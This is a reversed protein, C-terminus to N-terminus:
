DRILAKAQNQQHITGQSVLSLDDGFFCNGCDSCVHVGEYRNTLSIYFSAMGYNKSKDTSKGKKVLRGGVERCGEGRCGMMVAMM